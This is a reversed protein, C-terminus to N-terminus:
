VLIDLHFNPDMAFALADGYQSMNEFAKDCLDKFYGDTDVISEVDQYTMGKFQTADKFLYDTTGALNSKKDKGTKKDLAVRYLSAGDYGKVVPLFKGVRGVFQLDPELGEKDANIDMYIAGGGAVSKIECVDELTIPEHTFMTKFVYPHQFQAGTATWKDCPRGDKEKYKAIYVADNVLCMRDYIAELEFIYGYNKGFDKIFEIIYNDANPIKISDTKIHAVKYGKAEVAEKLDIMFLAGRKAVINDVNRPDRFPNDFTAATLGYVSNIVIKLAHALSGFDTIHEREIIDFIIGNLLTKLTEMDNHKVAIRSDKIEKFRNTYYDGFLNEAIISSPHMSAIDLLAVDSYMGPEAYVFGGEGAEFGKYLSVYKKQEPDYKYSYGPFYPKQEEWPLPEKSLDRYNFESQPNKNGEFIIKTILKNTTDNPKSGDGAIAVLMQRAAWEVKTANFVAETALVDNCCYDAVEEWHEEPLDQDWAYQNEVHSIGLEVEWKKLSKHKETINYYEMIDTYSLDYAAGFKCRQKETNSLTQDTLTHSLKFLQANTYELVGRAYLMHNDYDRCNFGVLREEMLKLVEEPTPNIMRYVKEDDDFKYCCMFVNPFVECDFFCLRDSIYNDTGELDADSKYHMKQALAACYTANNSSSFAFSVIQSRLDEINYIMGSKYADEVNKFIWDMESKTGGLNDEKKLAKRILNRLHKEDKVQFNEIMKKGGVKKYPLDALQAVPINNCYTVKRRLATKGKYVKIEINPNETCSALENVDGNYIYHLHVGNEGKSLEAYTKPWKAAERLNMEKCKNGNEDKIDFDIVIHNEPVRVYHVKKTDIDKLTTTVKDWAKAPIDNKGALQAQCDKLEEDLLSETCNLELKIEEELIYNEQKESDTLKSSLLGLGIWSHDTYHKKIEKFYPNIQNRFEKFNPIYKVGLDELYLKYNKWLPSLRVCEHEKEQAQLLKLNDVFYGYLFDSKELQRKSQYNLYKGKNNLYVQECHWAISGLEYKKVAKEAAIWEKNPLGGYIDPNTEVDIIRRLMGQDATVDIPNNSAMILLANPKIEVYDRHKQNVKLKVGTIVENLIQQSIMRSLDGDDDFLVLPNGSYYNSVTFTQSPDTLANLSVNTAYGEKKDTGGFMERYIDMISSKGSKPAGYLVLMHQIKTQDGAIAAGICWEMMEIEEDPLISHVLKNYNDIPGEVKAFPLKKTAYDEREVEENSFIIRNDVTLKSNECVNPLLDKIKFYNEKPSKVKPRLPDGGDIPIDMPLISKFKHLDNHMMQAIKRTLEAENGTFWLGSEKDYVAYPKMGKSIYDKAFPNFSVVITSKGKDNTVIDLNYLDITTEFENNVM